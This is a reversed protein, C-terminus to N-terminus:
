GVASTVTLTEGSGGGDSIGVDVVERTTEGETDENQCFRVSVGMFDPLSSNSKPRNRLGTAKIEAWGNTPTLRRSLEVSSGRRPRTGSMFYRVGEGKRAGDDKDSRDRRTHRITSVIRVTMGFSVHAEVGRLVRYFLRVDFFERDDSVAVCARSVLHDCM